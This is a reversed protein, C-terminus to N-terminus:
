KKNVSGLVGRIRETVAKSYADLVEAEDVDVIM